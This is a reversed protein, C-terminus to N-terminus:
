RSGNLSAGAQPRYMTNRCWREGSKGGASVRLPRESVVLCMRMCNLFHMLTLMPLLIIVNHIANTKNSEYM